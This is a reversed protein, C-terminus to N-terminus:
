FGRQALKPTVLLGGKNKKKPKKKEMTKLIISKVDYKYSPNNRRIQDTWDYTIKRKNKSIM